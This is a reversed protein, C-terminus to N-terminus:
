LLPVIVFPLAPLDNLVSYVACRKYECPSSLFLYRIGRVNGVCVSTDLTITTNTYASILVAHWTVDLSEPRCAGVFPCCVKLSFLRSVEYIKLMKYCIRM